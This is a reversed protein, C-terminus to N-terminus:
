IRKTPTEAVKYLTNITEKEFDQIEEITEEYLEDNDLAKLAMKQYHTDRVKLVWNILYSLRSSSNLSEIIFFTAFFIGIVCLFNNFFYVGTGYDGMRFAWGIYFLSIYIITCHFIIKGFVTEKKEIIAIVFNALAYILLGLSWSLEGLFQQFNNFNLFKAEEYKLLLEDYARQTNEKEMVYIEHEKTGKALEKVSSLALTRKKKATEWVTTANSINESDSAITEHAFFATVCIVALLYYIINKKNRLNGKEM